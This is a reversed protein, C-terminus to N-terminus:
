GLEKNIRKIQQGFSQVIGLLGARVEDDGGSLFWNLRELQISIRYSYLMIYFILVMSAMAAAATLYRPDYYSPSRALALVMFISMISMIIAFVVSYDKM